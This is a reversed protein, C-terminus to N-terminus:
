PSASRIVRKPLNAASRRASPPGLRNLATCMWPDPCPGVRGNHPPFEPGGMSARARVDPGKWPGLAGPLSKERESVVPFPLVLDPTLGVGQLPSGDPLSFLMTTLRLVGVDAKDDFYEQVCGKGFTRAGV